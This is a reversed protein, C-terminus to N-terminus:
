AQLARRRRRVVVIALALLTIIFPVLLINIIKLATGLRKIDEDLSRRVQRLEKRIRLKESQFREIEARQEDSLLLLNDDQRSSQLEALKSETEQLQTQLEQEKARFRQDAEIQLQQVRKFPRTFNARGRISILDSSGTLNELANIVFDGNNAFTSHLRQGFLSPLEQTWFRDTLLDTDTVLIINVSEISEALHPAPTPTDTDQTASEDSEDTADAIPSGDPFASKATGTIRVAINYVKEDPAFDPLLTTPDPLFRFRANDMLMSDITSMLLPQVTLGSDPQIDIAGATALNISDLGAVIVDFEDFETPTLGLFALHPVPRPNGPASVQLALNEDAVVRSLDVTVGWGNALPALQSARDTLMAAYPNQPDADLRDAEANPDVMVLANGGQMIFQDVAYLTAISLNKPHILMLVDIDDDIEPTAADLDRVEFVQEIQSTVVWPNLMQRLDPDFRRSMPLTSLLGIVPRVPDVLNHVLRALDYELFNENERNFFGIIETDGVSNTGALGLYMSDGTSGISVADLGFGSAEDEEESFPLPDVIHLKIKEDAEDEFEELMERVRNAYMRIHQLDQTAEDSFFFYLSIPEDIGALINKTGERLTYLKNETLDVRFGSLLLNSLIAVVIFLGALLILASTDFRKKKRESM